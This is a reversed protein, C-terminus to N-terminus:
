SEKTAARTPAFCNAPAPFWFRSFVVVKGNSEESVTYTKGKRIEARAGSEDELFYNQVCKREYM